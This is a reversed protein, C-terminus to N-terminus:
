LQKEERGEMAYTYLHSSYSDTVTSSLIGCTRHRKYVTGHLEVQAGHESTNGDYTKM